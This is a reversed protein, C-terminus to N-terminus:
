AVRPRTTTFPAATSQGTGSGTLCYGAVTGGAGAFVVTNGTEDSVETLASLDTNDHDDSVLDSTIDHLEGEARYVRDIKAEIDSRGSVAFRVRSRTLRTLDDKLEINGAQRISVAVLLEGDEWTLPLVCSRRAFDAPLLAAASANVTFESVDVYNLGAATAATRVVQDRDVIGADLLEQLPTQGSRGAAEGAEAVQEASVLQADLLAQVTQGTQGTSTEPM